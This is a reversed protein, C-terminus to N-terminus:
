STVYKGYEISIDGGLSEDEVQKNQNVHEVRGETQFLFGM